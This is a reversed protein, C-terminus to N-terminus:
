DEDSEEESESADDFELTVMKATVGLARARQLKVVTGKLKRSELGESESRRQILDAMQSKVSALSNDIDRVRQKVFAEHRAEMDRIHQLHAAEERAEAEAEERELEIMAQEHRQKEAIAELRMYDASGRIADLKEDVDKEREECRRVKEDAARYVEDGPKSQERAILSNWWVNGSARSEGIDKLQTLFIQYRQDDPLDLSPPAMTPLPTPDQEAQYQDKPNM